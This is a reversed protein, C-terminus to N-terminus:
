CLPCYQITPPHKQLFYERNDGNGPIRAFSSSWNNGRELNPGGKGHRVTASRTIITRWGLERCRICYDNDDFGYATFNEDLPGVEDIMSRSLYVCVFCVPASGAEVGGVELMDPRGKPGKWLEAVKHSSQYPNGVGGDVLPAIIGIRPMARIQRELAAFTPEILTVDDNCLIIDRDRFTDIGINCNRAFCFPDLVTISSCGPFPTEHRDRVVLIETDPPEHKRISAILDQAYEPHRSLTVVAYSM